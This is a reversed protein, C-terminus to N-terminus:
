DYNALTGFVELSLHGALNNTNGDMTMKVGFAGFWDDRRYRNTLGCGSECMVRLVSFCDHGAMGGYPTASLVNDARPCDSVCRHNTGNTSTAYVEALLKSHITHNQPLLRSSSRSVLRPPDPKARDPCDTAVRLWDHSLLSTECDLCATTFTNVPQDCPCSRALTM